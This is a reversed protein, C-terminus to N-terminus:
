DSGHTSRMVQALGLVWSKKVCCSSVRCLIWCSSAELVCGCSLRGLTLRRIAVLKRSDLFDSRGNRGVYRCGRV